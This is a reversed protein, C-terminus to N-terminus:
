LILQLRQNNRMGALKNSRVTLAYDLTYYGEVSCLGVINEFRKALRHRVTDLLDGVTESCKLTFRLVQEEEYYIMFTIPM